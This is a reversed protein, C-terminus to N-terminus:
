QPRRSLMLLAALEGSAALLMAAAAVSTTAIVEVIALGIYAVLAVALWQLTKRNRALLGRLTLGLPAVVVAVLILKPVLALNTASYTAVVAFLLVAHLAVAIRALM